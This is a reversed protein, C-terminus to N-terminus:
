RGVQCPFARLSLPSRAPSTFAFAACDVAGVEGTVVVTAAAGAPLDGLICGVDRGGEGQPVCRDDTTAANLVALTVEYVGQAGAAVTITVQEGDREPTAELAPACASLVALHLLLAAALRTVTPRPRRWGAPV